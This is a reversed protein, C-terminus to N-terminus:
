TKRYVIDNVTLGTPDPDGVLQVFIRANSDLVYASGSWTYTGGGAPGPPGQLGSTGVSVQGRNPTVVVREVPGSVTVRVTV